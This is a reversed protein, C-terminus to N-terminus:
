RRSRRQPRLSIPRLGPSDISDQDFSSPPAGDDARITVPDTVKLLAVHEAPRVASDEDVRIMVAPDRAVVKAEARVSHRGDRVAGADLDSLGGASIEDTGVVIAYRVVDLAVENAIAVAVAHKEIAPRVVLDDPVVGGTKEADEEARRGEKVWTYITSANVGIMAAADRRQVGIKM